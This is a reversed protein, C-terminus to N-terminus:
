NNIELNLARSIAQNKFVALEAGKKRKSMSFFSLAFSYIHLSGGELKEGEM